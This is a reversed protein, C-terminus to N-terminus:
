EDDDDDYSDEDCCRCCHVFDGEKVKQLDIGSLWLYKEFLINDLLINYISEKNKNKIYPLLEPYKTRVYTITEKLSNLNEFDKQLEDFKNLENYSIGNCKENLHNYLGDFIKNAPCESYHDVTPSRRNLEDCIECGSNCWQCNLSFWELDMIDPNPLSSRSNLYDVCHHYLEKDSMVSSRCCGKEIHILYGYFMCNLCESFDSM